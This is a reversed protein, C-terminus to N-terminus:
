VRSNASASSNATAFKDFTRSSKNCLSPTKVEWSSWPGAMLQCLGLNTWGQPPTIAALRALDQDHLAVEQKNTQPDCGTTNLVEEQSQTGPDTGLLSPSDIPRWPDLPHKDFARGLHGTVGARLALKQQMTRQRFCQGSLMLSVIRARWFCVALSSVGNRQCLPIM